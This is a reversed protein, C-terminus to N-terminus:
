RRGGRRFFPKREDKDTLVYRQVRTLVVIILFVVFAMAAGSGYRFNGFSQQYSLFAPSLTTGAPAGKGMVYIQDFVQWTGILGLTIVLFLAPKIMPLTVHRLKQWRSTGDLAAAEDIEVPLDQLAAIFMLMFTGSTTWIVLFIIVFMAVSPGSLWDWLSRGFIEGQAWAPNDIGVANFALHLLGRSDSFWQPGDIGFFGLFANVAGTNSFLFLFVTAIAISSTVSPFYFATRFFSRGKLMTNNVLLALALALVTQLPVVLLVYYFTNGISQMFNDRTLGDRAFLDTYNKLGVVDTGQGVVFPNTNGQWNTFSVWLAMGIPIVLFLGLIVIMPAVFIWGAAGERGRIGSGSRRPARRAGPAGAPGTPTGASAAAVQGARAGSASVDDQPREDISAM